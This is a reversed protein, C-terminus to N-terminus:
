HGKAVLRVLDMSTLIGVLQDGDTVPVRHIDHDLLVRAAEQVSQDPACTVVNRVMADGVHMRELRAGVRAGTRASDSEDAEDGVPATMRQYDSIQEERSREVDVMRVIDSRSVVGVLRGAEVVPFGSVSHAILKRELEVLPLDPEVTQLETSMVDAVRM